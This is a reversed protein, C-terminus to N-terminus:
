KIIRFGNKVDTVNSKALLKLCMSTDSHSFSCTRWIGVQQLGHTRNPIVQISRYGIDDIIRYSRIGSFFSSEVAEHILPGQNYSTIVVTVAAM